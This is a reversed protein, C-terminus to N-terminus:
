TAPVAKWSSNMTATPMTAGPNIRQGHLFEFHAVALNSLGADAVATLLGAIEFLVFVALPVM